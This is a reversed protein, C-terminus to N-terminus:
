RPPACPAPYPPPKSAPKRVVPPECPPPLPTSAAAAHEGTAHNSADPLGADSRFEAPASFLLPSILAAIWAAM